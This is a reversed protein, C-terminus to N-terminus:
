GSTRVFQTAGRFIEVGQARTFVQRPGERCSCMLNQQGPDHELGFLHGIEHVLTTPPADGGVVLYQRDRLKRRLGRYRWHLGRVGRNARLVSGLEVNDVLFVHITGDTPAYEALARRHRRHRIQSYGPPMPLVKGVHVEIGFSRLAANTQKLARELRRRDLRETAVHVTLAIRVRATSRKWKKDPEQRLDPVKQEGSARAEGGTLWVSAAVLSGCLWRRM